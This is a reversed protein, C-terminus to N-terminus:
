TPAAYVRRRGRRKAKKKRTKTRPDPPAKLLRELLRDREREVHAAALEARDKANRPPDETPTM